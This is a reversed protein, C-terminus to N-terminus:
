AFCQRLAANKFAQKAFIQIDNALILNKATCYKSKKMFKIKGCDIPKITM